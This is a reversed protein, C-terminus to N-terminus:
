PQRAGFVLSIIEYLRDQTFDSGNETDVRHVFVLKSAPYVGLMHVGAGTHFFSSTARNENPMLVSWLFGYGIGVHRNTVSYAKTSADIWSEPVIQKGKWSGRNLYLQGYLALDYASLRFHYAPYRSRDTEFQYFGDTAPIDDLSTPNTLVAVEGKYHRMGLPIAIEKLFADYITSGTEQEFVAGLVNFDWNNYYYAEGPARSGRVPRAAAMEESEAAAPHYVGSRSRLLDGLTASKEVDTLPELDDVRLDRITASTDIAGREVYIGFISNLIAKRISHVAHKRDVDGWEFFIKGNHALIMASSGAEELYAELAALKVPSFGADEPSIRPLSRDQAQSAPAPSLALALAIAASALAQVASSAFARQAFTTRFRHNM